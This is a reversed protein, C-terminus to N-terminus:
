FNIREREIVLPRKQVQTHIAGIYEGIVGIFFLQVSGFFFLGILLPATGLQFRNWFALKAVLYGLAILLSIASMSFGALTAIRLPVKSHNTIGLMALDYLTYFNNKTIGRKRAPQRYPLRAAEFGIDALLRRFYPYPDDIRRLIEIVERDYIGFGTTDKIMQIDSLRGILKYFTSRIAFM